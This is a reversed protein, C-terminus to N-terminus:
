IGGVKIDESYTICCEPSEWITVSKLSPMKDEELRLSMYYKSMEARMCYFFWRALFEATPCNEALQVNITYHDVVECVSDMMRKVSSFDILMNIEDLADGEIAVEVDWRHGHVRSCKGKYGDLCHASDFHAKARLKYM